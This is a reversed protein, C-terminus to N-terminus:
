STTARRLPSKKIKNTRGIKQRRQSAKLAVERPDLDLELYNGHGDFVIDTTVLHTVRYILLKVQMCVAAHGSIILYIRKWKRTALFSALKILSERVQKKLERKDSLNLSGAYVTYREGKFLSDPFYHVGENVVITAVDLDRKGSRMQSLTTAVSDFGHERVLEQVERELDDTM